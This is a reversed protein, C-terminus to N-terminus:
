FSTTVNVGNDETVLVTRSYSVTQGAVQVERKPGGGAFIENGGILVNLMLSLCDTTM